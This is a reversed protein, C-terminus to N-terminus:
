KRVDIAALFIAIIGCFIGVALAAPKPEIWAYIGLNAASTAINIYSWIM